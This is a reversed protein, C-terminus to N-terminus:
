KRPGVAEAIQLIPMKMAKHLRHNIVIEREQMPVRIALSIFAPTLVVLHALLSLWFHM